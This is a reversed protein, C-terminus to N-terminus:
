PSVSTLRARGDTEGAEAPEPKTRSLTSQARARRVPGLPAVEFEPGAVEAVRWRGDYHEIRIALATTRQGDDITVVGECARDHVWCAAAHQVLVRDTPVVDSRYHQQLRAALRVVVAPTMMPAVQSLPRRGALVETVLRALAPLVLAPDPRRPLDGTALRERPPPVTPPRAVSPTGGGRLPIVNERLRM